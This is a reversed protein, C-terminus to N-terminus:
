ENQRLDAMTSTAICATLHNCVEFAIHEGERDCDLWCILLHSQRAWEQLNRELPKKNQPLM